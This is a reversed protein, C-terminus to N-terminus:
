ATDLRGDLDGGGPGRAVRIPSSVAAAARRGPARAPQVTLPHDPHQQGVVLRHHARADSGDQIRGGVDLHDGLGTVTTRATSAAVHDVTPGREGRGASGGLM